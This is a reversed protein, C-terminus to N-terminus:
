SNGQPPTADAGGLVRRAREYEAESIEGAAYRRQLVTMATESADHRQSPFFARVAWVALLIVAVWAVLMLLGGFWGMGGWYGDNGM